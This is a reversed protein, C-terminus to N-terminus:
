NEDIRFESQQNIESQPLPYRPFNRKRLKWKRHILKFQDSRPTLKPRSCTSMTEFIISPSCVASSKERSKYYEAAKRVTKCKALQTELQAPVPLDAEGM